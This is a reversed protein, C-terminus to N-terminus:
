DGASSGAYTTPVAAVVDIEVLFDELGSGVTTRAPFPSSVYTRYVANFGDFDRSPDSLHVTAKVIQSMEVGYAGLVARLNRMAQHTQEEITEGVVADTVPHHPTQGATYLFGHAVIGQSYPGAPAPAADTSVEQLPAAVAEPTRTPSSENQM